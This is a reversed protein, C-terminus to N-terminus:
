AAPGQAASPAMELKLWGPLFLHGTYVHEIGTQGSRGPSDEAWPLVHIPADGPPRRGAEPEEPGRSALPNMVLEM